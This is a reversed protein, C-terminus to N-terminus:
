FLSPLCMKQHTQGKQYIVQRSALPVTPSPLTSDPQPAHNISKKNDNADKTINAYNKTHEKPQQEKAGSPLSPGTERSSKKVRNNPSIQLLFNPPLQWQGIEMSLGEERDGKYMIPLTGVVRIITTRLGEMTGRGITTGGSEKLIIHPHEVTHMTIHIYRPTIYIHTLTKLKGKGNLSGGM